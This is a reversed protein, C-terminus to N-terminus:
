AYPTFRVLHYELVVRLFLIYEYAQRLAFYSQVSLFAAPSSMAEVLIVLSDVGAFRVIQAALAVLPGM